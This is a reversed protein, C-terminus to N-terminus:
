HQRHELSADRVSVVDFANVSVLSAALSSIEARTEWVALSTELEEFVARVAEQVRHRAYRSAPHVEM